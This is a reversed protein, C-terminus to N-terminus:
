DHRIAWPRLARYNSQKRKGDRFQWPFTIELKKSCVCHGDRAAKVGKTANEQHEIEFEEYLSLQEVLAECLDADDDVIIIKRATM